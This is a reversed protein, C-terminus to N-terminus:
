YQSWILEQLQHKYKEDFTSHFVVSDPALKLEACIKNYIPKRSSVSIKDCKTLVFHFGLGRTQGIKVIQREREDPDRRIDLLLFIHKLAHRQELYSFILQECELAETKSMLAFGFGPLDVVTIKKQVIDNSMVLDYVVAHRTRGPMKSVRALDKKHCVANILSSKGVNSRGVFAIEGNLEQMMSLKPVSYVFQSSLVKIDV